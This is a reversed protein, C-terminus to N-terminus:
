RRQHHQQGLPVQEDLVHGADALRHQRLRQRAADVAADAADLEGRVQQGGVDRADRDEVLVGPGELEAGAADEGVHHDAVLDVPGGGLGLRRQQLAHLLPLHGDVVRRVLEVGGEHDDRRLVRDLHLAGVGQGLGLAVAEHRPHRDAVRDLGGLQGHQLGVRAVAREVVELRDGVGGLQALEDRDDPLDVDGLRDLAVGDRDAGGGAAGAVQGEAGRGPRRQV